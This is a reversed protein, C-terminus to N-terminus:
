EESCRKCANLPCSSEHLSARFAQLIESCFWWLAIGPIMSPDWFERSDEFYGDIYNSM